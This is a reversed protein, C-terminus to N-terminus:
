RLRLTPNRKMKGKARAKRAEDWFITNGGLNTTVRVLNRFERDNAIRGLEEKYVRNVRVRLKRDALLRLAVARRRALSAKDTDLRYKKVAADLVDQPSDGWLM